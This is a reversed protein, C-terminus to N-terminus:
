YKNRIEVVFNGVIRYELIVVTYQTVYGLNISQSHRQVLRIVNRAIAFQM